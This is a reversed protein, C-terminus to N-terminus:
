QTQAIAPICVREELIVGKQTYLFLTSVYKVERGHKVDIVHINRSESTKNYKM